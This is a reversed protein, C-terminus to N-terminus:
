SLLSSSMRIDLSRNRLGIAETEDSKLFSQEDIVWCCSRTGSRVPSAGLHGHTDRAAQDYRLRSIAATSRSYM